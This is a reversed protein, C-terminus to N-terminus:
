GFLVTSKLPLSPGNESLVYHFKGEDQEKAYKAAKLCIKCEPVPCVSEENAMAKIPLPHYQYYYYLM